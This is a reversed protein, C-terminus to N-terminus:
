AVVNRLRLDTRDTGVTATVARGETHDFADLIHHTELIGPLVSTKVM